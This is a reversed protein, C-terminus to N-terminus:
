PVRNPRGANAIIRAIGTRVSPDFQVDLEVTRLDAKQEAAWAAVAAVQSPPM